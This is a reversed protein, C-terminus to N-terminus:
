HNNLCREPQLEVKTILLDRRHYIEREQLDTLFKWYGGFYEPQTLVQGIELGKSDDSASQVAYYRPTDRDWSEPENVFLLFDGIEVTEMGWGWNRKQGTYKM